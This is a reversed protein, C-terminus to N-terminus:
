GVQANRARAAATPPQTRSGPRRGRCARARRQRAVATSPNAPRRRTPGPAPRCNASTVGAPEPPPAVGHQLHPRSEPAPPGSSAASEDPAATGRRTGQGPRRGALRAAAPGAPVTRRVGGGPRAPGATVPPWWPLSVVCGSAVGPRHQAGNGHDEGLAAHVDVEASDVDPPHVGSGLRKGVRDPVSL